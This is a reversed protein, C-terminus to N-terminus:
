HERALWRGGKDIRDSTSQQKGEGNGNGKNGNSAQWGRQWQEQRRRWQGRRQMGGKDGIGHGTSGEGEKDVPMRIVMVMARAMKARKIAIVM